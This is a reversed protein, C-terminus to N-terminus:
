ITYEELPDGPMPRKFNFKPSESGFLEDIMYGANVTAPHLYTLDSIYQEALSSGPNHRRMAREVYPMLDQKFTKPLDYDYHNEQQSARPIDGIFMALADLVDGILESPPLIDSNSYMALNMPDTPLGNDTLVRKQKDTLEAKIPYLPRQNTSDLRISRVSRFAQGNFKVSRTDAKNDSVYPVITKDIVMFSRAGLRFLNAEPSFTAYGPALAMSVGFDNVIFLKGINPIYYRKGFINYVWYSGPTAKVNYYLINQAKVDNNFVQGNKHIAYLGALIQFLANYLEPISPKTMLWNHLDGNALETMLLLCPKTTTQKKQLDEFECTPCVYTEYLLPLNPCTRNKILPEIIDRLILAETWDTKNSWPKKVSNMTTRGQKIAFRQKVQTAGASAHSGSRAGSGSASASYVIGFSGSGLRKDVSVYKDLQDNLCQRVNKKKIFTLFQEKLKFRGSTTIYAEELDVKVPPSPKGHSPVPVKIQRQWAVPSPMKTQPTPLKVPSPPLKTQTPTPPIKARIKAKIKAIKAKVGDTVKVPCQVPATTAALPHKAPAPKIAKSNLPCTTKNTGPSGCLSCAGGGVQHYFKTM